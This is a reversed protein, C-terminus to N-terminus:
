AEGQEPATRKELAQEQRPAAAVGDVTVSGALVMVTVTGVVTEVVVAAVDTTAVDSTTMTSVVMTCVTVAGAVVANATVEVTRESVLVRVDVVACAGVDVASLSLIWPPTRPLPKTPV